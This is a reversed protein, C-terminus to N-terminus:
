ISYSLIFFFLQQKKNSHHSPLYLYRRMKYTLVNTLMPLFKRLVSFHRFIASQTLIFSATKYFCRIAMKYKACFITTYIYVSM